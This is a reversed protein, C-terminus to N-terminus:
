KRSERSGLQGSKTQAVRGGDNEGHGKNGGRPSLPCPPFGSFLSDVKTNGRVCWCCSAGGSQISGFCALCQRRVEKALHMPFCSEKNEPNGVEWNGLSRGPCSSLRSHRRSPHRGAKPISMTSLRPLRSHRRSPHRGAKPISMTSLRPLRSHRRSPHRGAKPISM